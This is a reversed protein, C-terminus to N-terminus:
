CLRLVKIVIFDSGENGQPDTAKLRLRLTDSIECGGTNYPITDSPKWDGNAAPIIAYTTNGVGTSPNYNTTAEWSITVAGGEPDTASGALQIVQDPGVTVGNLPKNLNVVPPLNAPPDIVNVNVTVSSSGGHSDTGTLTLVRTGNNPFSLTVDCGSRPFGDGAVSSTWVMSSCPLEFTAENPDYSVSRLTTNVGRFFQQGSFPVSIAVTPLTNIITISLNTSTTTGKSDVATATITRTGLTKFVYSIEPQIGSANGLAGSVGDATNSSKFSVLCCTNGDEADSVQVRLTCCLNIDQNGAANLFRIAPATNASRAIEVSNDWLNTAYSKSYGLVDIKVGVNGEIGAHLKWFPDRPYMLDLRIFPAIEITPGVVGYFILEGRAVAKAKADLVGSVASDAKVPGSKFSNDLESINKWSDDYKVGAVATLTQSAEYTVKIGVSGDFKLEIVIRPRIVVPVPGIFFTKTGFNLTVIPVTKKLNTGLLADGAIKLKATEKLGIKAMFDLDNDYLCLPGCDLDLDVAFVVKLSLEGSATIRDNTTGANNDKDLVVLNFPITFGEEAQPHILGLEVGQAAIASVLDAESLEQEISLQGKQLADGFQAQVTKVVTKGPTSQIVATVKRLLGDPAAATPASVIVDGAKFNRPDVAQTNLSGAPIDAFILTGDEQVEELANQASEDLIVTEERVIVEPEQIAPPSSCAPLLIAIVLVLANLQKM